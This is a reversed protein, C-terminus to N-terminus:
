FQGQDGTATTIQGVVRPKGTPLQAGVIFRAGNTKFDVSSIGDIQELRAYFKTAAVPKRGVEECFYQFAGYVAKRSEKAGSTITLGEEVFLRVVDAETRYAETESTIRASKSFKWGNAELRQLARVAAPLVGALEAQLKVEVDPNEKGRFDATFPVILWREWFGHTTDSTGPLENASFLMLARNVFSFPQGYKREAKITDGGTAMKFLDTRGMFRADLDGCINVQKGLLEAIAFRSETLDQLTVSSVYEKGILAEILRLLTGKGNRGHGHLMAARQVPCQPMISAGILEWLVDLLQPDNQTVFDLWEDVYGCTADPEWDVQLQYTSAVNPTHPILEGSRWDLLGNKCNLYKAPQDTGIFPKQVRLTDLLNHVHTVLKRTDLLATVRRAVEADAGPSYVGNSYSYLEQGPGVALPGMKIVETMLMALDMRTGAFFEDPEPLGIPRTDAMNRIPGDEALPQPASSEIAANLEDAFMAGSLQLWDNLDDGHLLSISRADIGLGLLGDRLAAAFKAGAEDNDPVIAVIRGEAIAAISPAVKSALSAGRVAVSEFGAGYASLADTPGECVILAPHQAGAPHVYRGAKAWGRGSLSAWRADKPTSLDTARGQASAPLITEVDYFPIILRDVSAFSNSIAAWDSDGAPRLGLRLDRVQEDSMGFRSRVQELVHAGGASWLQASWITLQQNLKAINIDTVVADTVVASLSYETPWEWGDGSLDPNGLATRIDDYTCGTYCNLLLKGSEGISVGFSPSRDPHAPCSATVGNGSHNVTANELQGLLDRLRDQKGALHRTEVRARILGEPTNKM